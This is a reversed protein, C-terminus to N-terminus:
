RGYRPSTGSESSLTAITAAPCRHRHELEHVDRLDVAGAGDLHPREVADRQADVLALHDRDHAVGARALRRHHVDEAAQVGRGAPGVVEVPHVDQGQGVVLQGRDAVALDPEDELREVQEGAGGRLAVDLQRQDVPTLAVAGGARPRRQLADTRALLNFGQFVFGLYRRRLLARQDRDLQEVHFGKFQFEGSTPVDLCGLINMMTSKGSGSPGMVAVFDGPEIAFSVGKLAEFAAAGQGYTKTVGEIEIIPPSTM